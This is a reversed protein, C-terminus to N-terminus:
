GTGRHAQIYLIFHKNVSQLKIIVMTISILIYEDFILYIIEYNLNLHFKIPNKIKSYIKDKAMHLAYM